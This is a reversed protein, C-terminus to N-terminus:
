VLAIATVPPLGGAFLSWSRGEDESVYVQGEDTGLVVTAGAATLCGTDINSAFWEPLGDRCREFPGDGHLPRRYIGAREAFPGTSATVLTTSGAFAVARCYSGHLGDTTWDWTQGGDRTQGFGIAAAVIATGTGPDCCVQHTDADVEVVQDWGSDLDVARWVGGVHVNVWVAGEGDVSLSRTDPPGGWPTYWEDRSPIRDFSAIPSGTLADVLHAESTGVLLRGSAPLLCRAQLRDLRAVETWDSPSVSGGADARLVAEDDVIAWVGGDGVTLEQVAHGDLERVGAGVEHLGDKTGVLITSM